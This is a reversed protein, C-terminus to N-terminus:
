SKFFFFSSFLISFFNIQKRCKNESMQKKSGKKLKQQLKTQKDIELKTEKRM